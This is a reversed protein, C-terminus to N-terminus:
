FLLTMKRAQIFGGAELQYIYVGSRVSEGNEDKGGWTFRYLGPTLTQNVLTRVLRGSDDYISLRVEHMKVLNFSITTAMKFPNPYNQYLKFDRLVHTLMNEEISGSTSRDYVSIQSSDMTSPFGASDCLFSVWNELCNNYDRGPLDPNTNVPYRAIPTLLFKAAYWSAAVPDTSAVLMKTNEVWYLNNPGETTTWTADIITLKPFAVAMVRTVLAYTGFFFTYHMPNWGGYRAAAYATTLVGIWNKVAITAGAMSHAKLVPFDIICLRSSDYSASLSDWVGYRLSIYYENSPSRFKPYSIKTVPDYVYGDSYDGDCYESAVAAWIYNWDMSYVPYGKAYFTSVVDIISQDPDESNNDNDNIGTGIDQTNDCVLIEGSFGDPHGLIQWILGKIRDTSTTNRSTWQFNGKIIVIDDSGVIGNLHTDTKYLFVGCTTLMELLTDIAPDSLYEDPVSTDGGALSGVTPPISDMVVVTSVPNDVIWVPLSRIVTLEARSFEPVTCLFWVLGVSLIVILSIKALKQLFLSGGVFAIIGLLWNTAIPLATRQCPYTLRKPNTGSRLLLWLFAAFGIIWYWWQCLRFNRKKSSM